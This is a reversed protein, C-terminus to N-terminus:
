KWRSYEGLAYIRLAKYKLSIFLGGRMDPIINGLVARDNKDIVNDPTLNKFKIDGGELTNGDENVLGSSLADSNSSYLGDTELGYFHFLQSEM